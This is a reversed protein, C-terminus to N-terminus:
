VLPPSWILLEKSLTTSCSQITIQEGARRSCSKILEGIVLLSHPIRIAHAIEIITRLKHNIPTM